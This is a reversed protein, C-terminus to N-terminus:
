GHCGDMQKQANERAAVAEQFSSYLGLYHSVGHRTIEARWRGPHRYPYVGRAGSSAVKAHPRNLSNIHHDADRLNSLRNDSRVANIHDIIFPDRGYAMKWIIRHALYCRKSICVQVYGKSTKTGARRGSKRWFLFGNDYDVTFLKELEERCPMNVPASM